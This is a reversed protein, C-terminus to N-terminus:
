SGQRGSKIRLVHPGHDIGVMGGTGADRQGVVTKNGIESSVPYQRVKAIGAGVLVISLSRDSGPKIDNGRNGSEFCASSFRERDSNPDGRAYHHHAALALQPLM